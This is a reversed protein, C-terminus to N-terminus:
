AGAGRSGRRRWLQFMLLSWLAKRHNARREVHERVLTDVHVPDILGDDRLAQPSLLEHLLPRLPGALWSAAPIGFGKKKRHIVDNPILGRAADKLMAKTRGGRLKDGSPLAFAFDVVADDLFPARVELSAAMAARDVKQLVGAALYTRAYGVQLLDFVDRAGARQATDELADLPALLDDHTLRARAERSLLARLRADTAGTLFLQHRRLPRPEAWGDLTRQLKFDFSFDDHRVPLSRAARLGLATAIRLPGSLRDMLSPRLAEVLFTPYGLFLEDGGDGGLAVTVRQRAFRSLVATPLVSHDGFPESLHHALGPLTELLGREDLLEENHNSGIHQAVARAWPSEDFSRERFAISFTEVRAHRSALAAVLSSDIGGSLFIGVPVDAVMRTAVAEELKGRLLAVREHHFPPLTARTFSLERYAVARSRLAGWTDPADLPIQLLHGAPLKFVGRYICDPDPVFDFGLYRALASVDIERRAHPLSELAALESAFAVRPKHDDFFEPTAVYLPKKGMPDRALLLTHTRLDVAAFAFMGSLRQCMSAGWARAGHVLVETDSHDSLFAHGSAILEARLKLHNYIQGNFVVAIDSSSSVMPQRGGEHDLISLRRHSLGVHHLTGPGRWTAGADPGRHSLRHGMDTLVDDAVQTGPAEILGAIGCM